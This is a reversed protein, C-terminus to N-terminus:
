GGGKKSKGKSKAKKVAAKEAAEKELIVKIQQLHESLFIDVAARMISAPKVGLEKAAADVADRMEQTCMATPLHADYRERRLQEIM